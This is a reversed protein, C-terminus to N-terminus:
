FDRRLQDEELTGPVIDPNRSHYRYSEKRAGVFEIDFEDVKIHATGFNKFYNVHPPPNFRKATEKALKIGDGTCVIDADKTQRELIKDRVFGGIVYCPMTLAQATHAIKKFIFLEKETCKIDM